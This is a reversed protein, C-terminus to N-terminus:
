PDIAESLGEGDLRLFIYKYMCPPLIGMEIGESNVDLFVANTHMNLPKLATKVSAPMSGEPVERPTM